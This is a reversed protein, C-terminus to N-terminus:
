ETSFHSSSRSWGVTNSATSGKVQFLAVGDTDYSHTPFYFLLPPQSTTSPHSKLYLLYHLASLPPCVACLFTSVCACLCVYLCVCVSLCASLRMSVCACVSLFAYLCARACVCLCVCVSVSVWICLSVYRDPEDSNKFSSAKGGKHIITKGKFLELFHAPEKGQTM